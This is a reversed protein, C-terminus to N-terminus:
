LRAEGIKPNCKQSISKGLNWYFSLLETNAAMSVRMAAQRVQQKIEQLWNSYNDNKIPTIEM